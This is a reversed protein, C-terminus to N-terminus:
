IFEPLTFGTGMVDRMRRALVSFVLLALANPLTFWFVGPLGRDFAQQSSIFLAPAQIWASTLSLMGVLVGINHNAALFLRASLSSRSLVSTAVYMCTFWAIILTVGALPSIM